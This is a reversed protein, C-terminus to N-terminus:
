AQNFRGYRNLGNIWLGFVSTNMLVVVVIVRIM